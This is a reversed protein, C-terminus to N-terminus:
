LSVHLKRSVKVNSNKLKDFVYSTSQVLNASSYFEKFGVRAEHM